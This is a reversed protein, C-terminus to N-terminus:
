PLIARAAIAAVVPNDKPSPADHRHRRARHPARHAAPTDVTGMVYAIRGGIFVLRPAGNRDPLSDSVLPASVVVPTAYRDEALEHQRASAFRGLPDADEGGFYVFVGKFDLRAQESGREECLKRKKRLISETLNCDKGTIADMAHDTWDKGTVVTSVVSAITSIDGLSLRAVIPGACGTLLLPLSLIAAVRVLKRLRM